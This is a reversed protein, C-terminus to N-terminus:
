IGLGFVEGGEDALEAGLGNGYGTSGQAGDDGGMKDVSM